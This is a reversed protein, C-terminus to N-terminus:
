LPRVVGTMEGICAHVCQGARTSPIKRAFIEDMDQDTAGENQECDRAITMFSAIMEDKTM